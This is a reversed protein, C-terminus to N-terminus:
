ILDKLEALIESAKKVAHGRMLDSKKLHEPTINDFASLAAAVKDMLPDGVLNFDGFVKAIDQVNTLVTDYLRASPVDEGNLKAEETKSYVTLRDVMHALPKAVKQLAETTAAAYAMDISSEFRRKLEREVDADLGSTKFSTVDPIPMMQYDLAFANRIEEETPPAVNMNTLNDRSEEILHPADRVFADVLGQWKAKAPSWTEGLWRSMVTNGMLRGGPAWESTMARTDAGLQGTVQNIEKVRAVGAKTLRQAQVKCTGAETGHQEDAERSAQKDTKSMGLSSSSVTLVVAVQALVSSLSTAGVNMTHMNM